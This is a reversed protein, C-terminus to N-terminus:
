KKDRFWSWQYGCSGCKYVAYDKTKYFDSWPKLEVPDIIRDVYGATSGDSLKSGAKCCICVENIGHKLGHGLSEAKAETGKIYEFATRFVEKAAYTMTGDM